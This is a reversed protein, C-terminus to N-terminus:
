LSTVEKFKFINEIPNNEHTDFTFKFYRPKNTDNKYISVSGKYVKNSCVEEPINSECDYDPDDLENFDINYNKLLEDSVLKEFVFERFDM